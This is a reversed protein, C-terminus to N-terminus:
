RLLSRRRAQAPAAVWALPSLSWTPVRFHNRCNPGLSKQQVRYGVGQLDSSIMRNVANSGGGGVGIVEIRASQSPVIGATSGGLSPENSPQVGNYQASSETMAANSSATRDLQPQM